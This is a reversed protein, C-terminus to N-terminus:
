HTVKVGHDRYVILLILNDQKSIRARLTFISCSHKQTKKATFCIGFPLHIQKSRPPDLTANLDGALLDSTEAVSKIVPKRQQAPRSGSQFGGPFVVNASM